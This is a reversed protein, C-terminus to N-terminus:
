VIGHEVAKRAKRRIVDPLPIRRQFSEALDRGDMCIVKRARGFATLGVDTFGNYSIFLGRSWDARQTLKGHFTHLDAAGTLQRELMDSRAADRRPVRLLNTTM